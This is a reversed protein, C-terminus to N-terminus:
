VVQIEYGNISVNLESQIGTLPYKCLSDCLNYLHKKKHMPTHISSSLSYHLLPDLCFKWVIFFVSHIIETEMDPLFENCINRLISAFSCQVSMDNIIFLQIINGKYVFYKAM